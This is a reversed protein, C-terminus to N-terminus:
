VDQVDQSESNDHKPSALSANTHVVKKKLSKIKNLVGLGSTALGSSGVSKIAIMRAKALALKRRKELDNLLMEVLSILTVVLGLGVSAYLLLFVQTSTYVPFQDGLGITTLTVFSFYFANGWGETGPDRSFVFMGLLAWVVITFLTITIRNKRGAAEMIDADLMSIAEKFEELSISGSADSDVENVLEQFQMDTLEINLNDIAKRFEELNLDSSGNDNFESFAKEIKNSGISFFWTVLKLASSSLLVLTTGALPIGFLSFLVLFAKGRDTVPAFTGYGITTVLTFTFMCSSFFQWEGGYEPPDDFVVHPDAAKIQNYLTSNGGLIDMMKATALTHRKRAAEIEEIAHEEEIIEFVVGGILILVILSSVSSVLAFLSRKMNLCCIRVNKNKANLASLESITLQSRRKRDPDDSSWEEEAHKKLPALELDKSGEGTTGQKEGEGYSPNPTPRAVASDDGSKPKNENM